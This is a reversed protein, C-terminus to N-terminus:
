HHYSLIFCFLVFLPVYWEIHVTDSEHIKQWSLTTIGIERDTNKTVVQHIIKFLDELIKESVFAAGIVSVALKFTQAAQINNKLAAIRKKASIKIAEIKQICYEQGYNTEILKVSM